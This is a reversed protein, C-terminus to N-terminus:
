EKFSNGGVYLDFDVGLNLLSMQKILDPSIHPGGLMTNGNHFEMAVQIYGGAKEVLLKVGEIDQQLFVLLSRLKDEFEDPEPNPEFMICSFQYTTNGTRRKDGKNWGISNPLITYAALEQFDLTSSTARFYVSVYPATGVFRVVVEPATDFYVVFSFKERKVPFYVIITGDQMERDIRLKDVNDLDIEHIALFQQTVGFTKTQIEEIAKQIIEKDDM